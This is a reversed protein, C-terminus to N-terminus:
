RRKPTRRGDNPTEVLLEMMRRHTEQQFKRKHERRSPNRVALIAILELVLSLDAEDTLAGRRDIRVLAPALRAEFEAYSSEVLNPDEGEIDIPQFGAGSRYESPDDHFCATAKRRDRIAARRQQRHKYIAESLM